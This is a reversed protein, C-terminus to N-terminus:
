EIEYMVRHQWGAPPAQDYIITKEEANVTFGDYYVPGGNSYGIIIQVTGEKPKRSLTFRKNSGDITGGPEENVSHRHARIDLDRITKRM